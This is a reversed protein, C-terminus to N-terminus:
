AGFLAPARKELLAAVGLAVLIAVSDAVWDWVDAVRSPTFLQHIEDSAGYLSALAFGAGAAVWPQRGHGKRVAFYIGLSQLGFLVAHVVKDNALMWTPPLQNTHRTSLYFIFAAWLCAPLWAVSLPYRTKFM